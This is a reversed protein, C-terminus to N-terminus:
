PLKQLGMGIHAFHDDETLILTLRREQMVVVSTLDTFSIFPKDRFKLRLRKAKEFREPSIRELRLYSEKIAQEIRELSAKAIEFSLWRFLLTITEDLVYDSTYSTGGQNWFHQLFDSVETHRAERKNSAAIWGWSDIFIRV